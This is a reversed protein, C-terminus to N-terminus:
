YAIMELVTTGSANVLRVANVRKGTDGVTGGLNLSSWPEPSYGGLRTFVAQFIGPKILSEFQYYRLDNKECRIM